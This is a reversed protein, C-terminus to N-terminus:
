VTRTEYNEYFIKEEAKETMIYKKLAIKNKDREIIIDTDNADNRYCIMWDDEDIYDLCEFRKNNLAEQYAQNIASMLLGYQRANLELHADEWVKTIIREIHAITQNGIHGNYYKLAKKLKNATPLNSEIIHGRNIVIQSM